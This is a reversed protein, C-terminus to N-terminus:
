ISGYIEQKRIQYFFNLDLLRRHDFFMLVRTSFKWFCILSFQEESHLIYIQFKFKKLVKENFNTLKM